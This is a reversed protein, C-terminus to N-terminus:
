RPQTTKKLLFSVTEKQLVESKAPSSARKPFKKTSKKANKKFTGAGGSPRARSARSALVRHQCGTCGLRYPSRAFRALSVRSASLRHVGAPPGLNHHGAQHTGAEKLQIRQRSGVGRGAPGSPAPQSLSTLSHLSHLSTSM